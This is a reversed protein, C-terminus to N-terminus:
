PEAGDLRRTIREALQCVRAALGDLGLAGLRASPVALAVQALLRGRHLVPAALVSLGEIWEDTNSAWGREAVLTVERAIADSRTRTQSTFGEAVAPDFAVDDPALALQLKGVATAHVPVSAGVRPAARLFGKGEAKDLVVLRGARAAVVFVTEGVAEAEQEILRRAAGVVPEREQVGLGLSILAVGPRYRGRGDQEVLGRRRLTALLRHTSSKAGGLTAALETVGCATGASHLAFLVDIAKDVTSLPAQLSKRGAEM